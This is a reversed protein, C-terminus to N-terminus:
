RQLGRDCRMFCFGYESLGTRLDRASFRRRKLFLDQIASLTTIITPESQQKELRLGADAAQLVCLGHFM